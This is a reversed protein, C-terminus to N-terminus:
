AAKDFDTQDLKGRRMRMVVDNLGALQEHRELPRREPTVGLAEREFAERQRRANLEELSILDSTHLDFRVEDEAMGPERFNPSNIQEKM